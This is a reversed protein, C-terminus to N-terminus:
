FLDTDEPGKETEMEELPSFPAKVEQPSPKEAKSFALIGLFIFNIVPLLFLLGLWKNRGLNETICMYLYVIIFLNAIPILLLLLWWWPRGASAVVTWVQAIPIWALWPFSVNLKRAILYYCLSIYVYFGLGIVLFLLMMGAFIGMLQVVLPLPIAPTPEAPPIKPFVPPANLVQQPEPKVASKTLADLTNVLKQVEKTPTPLPAEKKEPIALKQQTKVEKPPEAPKQVEKSPVPEEKPPQSPMPADSLHINGKEDVWKYIASFSSGGFLLVISIIFLARLHKRKM